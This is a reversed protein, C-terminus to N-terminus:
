VSDPYGMDRMAQRSVEPKLFGFSIGFLMLAVVLGSLIGGTWLRGKSVAQGDAQNM